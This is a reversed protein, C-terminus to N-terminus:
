TSRIARIVIQQSQTITGTAGATQLSKIVGGPIIMATALTHPDGIALFRYPATLPRGDVLIGGGPTDEFYTDVGVRVDGIQMVEAGADRLEEMADLLANARVRHGPDTVDLQIGPGAASLTGALIGYATARRRAERLATGGQGDRQLGAKTGELERIDGRLRESRQSLDALIGVLEDQRATAFTTDANTARVQIAIAFGLVLCLAGGVLQWGSARPRLLGLWARSVSGRM